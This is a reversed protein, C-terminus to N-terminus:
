DIAIDRADHPELSWVWGIEAASIQEAMEHDSLLELMM